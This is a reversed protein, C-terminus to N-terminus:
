IRGLFRWERRSLGMALPILLLTLFLVLLPGIVSGGKGLAAHGAAVARQALSLGIQGGFGARSPWTTAFSPVLVQIASFTAACAPLLGGFAVIRLFPASLTHTRVIQWAWAVLVVVPVASALGLWQVLFDSLSAGVQGLLNSPPTESSTNFSPDLPNYSWLAVCIVFALALLVLGGLEAFRARLASRLAPSATGATTLRSFSAM